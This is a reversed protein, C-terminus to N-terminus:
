MRGSDGDSTNGGACLPMRMSRSGRMKPCDMPSRCFLAASPPGSFEPLAPKKASIWARRRNCNFPASRMRKALAPIPSWTNM